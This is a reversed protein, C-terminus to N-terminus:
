CTSETCCASCFYLKCKFMKWLAAKLAFMSSSLRFAHCPFPPSLVSPSPPLHLHLSHTSPLHLLLQRLTSTSTSSFCTFHSPKHLHGREVKCVVQKLFIWASIKTILNFRCKCHATSSGNFGQHGLLHSKWLFEAVLFFRCGIM